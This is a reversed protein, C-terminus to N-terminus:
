AFLLGVAAKWDESVAGALGGLSLFFFCSPVCAAGFWAFGGTMAAFGLWSAAFFAFFSLLGGAAWASIAAAVNCTIDVACVDNKLEQALALICAAWPFTLSRASGNSNCQGKTWSQASPAVHKHFVCNGWIRWPVSPFHSCSQIWKGRSELHPCSTKPSPRM